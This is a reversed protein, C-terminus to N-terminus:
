VVKYTKLFPKDFVTLLGVAYKKRLICSRCCVGSPKVCDDIMLKRNNIKFREKDGNWALRLKGPEGNLM